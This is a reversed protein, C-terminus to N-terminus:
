ANVRRLWDALRRIGDELAVQPAWGLAAQIRGIDACLAPLDSRRSERVILESTSGTVRLVTEALARISTQVGTGINFISGALDAGQALVLAYARVADEVYLFDRTQEGGGELRLPQGALALRIFAPIVAPYGELNQHPGYTNFNRIVVVPHGWWRHLAMCHMEAALKTVAYVTKPRLPHDENMPVQLPAGYVEPSSAYVLLPPRRMGAVAHAFHFTGAENNAFYGAPEDMSEPVSIRAAYHVVVDPGYADLDTSSLGAFDARVIQLRADRQAIASLPEGGPYRRSFDDVAVVSTGPDGALVQRTLHVGYM